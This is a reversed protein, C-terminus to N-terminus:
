QDGLAMMTGLITVDLANGNSYQVYTIELISATPATNSNTFSVVSSGSAATWAYNASSFATTFNFRVVGVGTDTLSTVNYSAGITPTGASYSFRCWAKSSSPHHQHVLPTTAVSSSSGAEMQAQSAAPLGSAGLNSLLVKRNALASADYILAFDAATDVVAETTAGVINVAITPNGATGDGNTVGIGSGATITRGTVAGSGTRTILGSTTNNAYGTLEVSYAMVNTGIALGLNTRAASASSAGTGGDAVALDTIGTISGGTITVGTSPQLAMTDFGTVRYNDGLRVVPIEDTPLITGGLAMASIKLNAM